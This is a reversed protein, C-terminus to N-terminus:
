TRFYVGIACVWGLLSLTHSQQPPQYPVISGSPNGSPDAFTPVSPLLPSFLRDVERELRSLLRNVVFAVYFQVGAMAKLPVLLVLDPNAAFVIAAVVLLVMSIVPAWNSFAQAWYVAASGFTAVPRPPSIRMIVRARRRVSGPGSGSMPALQTAVPATESPSPTPVTDPINGTDFGLVFGAEVLAIMVKAFCKQEQAAPTTGRSAAWKKLLSPNEVITDIYPKGNLTRRGLTEVIAASHAYFAM